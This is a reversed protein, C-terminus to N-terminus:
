FVSISFQVVVLALRFSAGSKGLKLKGKLAEVPSFASLVFAPYSGALFGVILIVGTLFLYVPATHWSVTLSYGLLQNYWPMILVLLVVSIICSICALLVSEGIFQWILSKRM